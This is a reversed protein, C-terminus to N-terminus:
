GLPLPAPLSAPLQLLLLMLRAHDPDHRLCSYRRLISLPTTLVFSSNTTTRLKSYWVHHLSRSLSRKLVCGNSVSAIAHAAVLMCVYPQGLNYESRM